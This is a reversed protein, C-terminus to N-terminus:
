ASIMAMSLATIDFTQKLNWCLTPPANPYLMKQAIHLGSNSSWCGRAPALRSWLSWEPLSLCIRLESALWGCCCTGPETLGQRFIYSSFHISFVDPEQGVYSCVPYVACGLECADWVCVCMCWVCWMCVCADCMVSMCWVCTVCMVCYICWVHM